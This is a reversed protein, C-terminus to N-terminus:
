NMSESGDPPGKTNGLQVVAAASCLLLKTEEKGM